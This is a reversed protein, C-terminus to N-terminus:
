RTYHNRAQMFQVHTDAVYYTVRHEDTLRRSWTNRLGELPEPKGMGQFPDRVILEVMRLLREALRPNTQVWFRLDQLFLDDFISQRRIQPGAATKKENAPPISRSRERSAL